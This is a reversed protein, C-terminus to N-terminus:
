KKFDEQWVLKRIQAKSQRAHCDLCWVQRWKGDGSLQTETHRAICTRCIKSEHDCPSLSETEPFERLAQVEACISCEKGDDAFRTGNGRNGPGEYEKKKPKPIVGLAAIEKTLGGKRKQKYAASSQRPASTSAQSTNHTNRLSKARPSSARPRPNSRTVAM